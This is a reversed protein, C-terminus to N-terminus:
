LKGCTLFGGFLFFYYLFHLSGINHVTAIIVVFDELFHPIQPLIEDNTQSPLPFYEEVPLPNRGGPEAGLPFSLYLQIQEVFSFLVVCINGMDLNLQRRRFPIDIQDQHLSNCLVGHHQDGVLGYGAFIIHYLYGSQVKGSPSNLFVEPNALQLCDIRQIEVNADGHGEQCVHRPLIFCIGQEFGNQFGGPRNLVLHLEKIVSNCVSDRFQEPMGM